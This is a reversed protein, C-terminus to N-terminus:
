GRGQPNGKKKIFYFQKLEFCYSNGPLLLLSILLLTTPVAGSGWHICWQKVRLQAVSRTEEQVILEQAAALPPVAQAGLSHVVARPAPGERFASHHAQRDAGLSACLSCCFHLFARPPLSNLIVRVRGHLTQWPVM